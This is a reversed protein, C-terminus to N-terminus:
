EDITPIPADIKSQEKKRLKLNEADVLDHPRGSIEKSRILDDISIFHIKTEGIKVSEKTRWCEAFNLHKLGMIIDIRTPEVGMQYVLTPRTFDEISIDSLPAGFAMLARFVREANKPSNSIWLDIDKTYRPEAHKGVAYGGIILYKVKEESFVKLLEKFDSNVRTEGKLNGSELGSFGM